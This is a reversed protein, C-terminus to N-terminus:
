RGVNSLYEQDTIFASDVVTAAPACSRAAEARRDSTLMINPHM